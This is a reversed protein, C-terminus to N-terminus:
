DEEKIRFKRFAKCVPYDSCRFRIAAGEIKYLHMPKGCELCTPKGTVEHKKAGISFQRGCM